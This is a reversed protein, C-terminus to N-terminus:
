IIESYIDFLERYEENNKTKEVYKVMERKEWAGFSKHYKKYLEISLNLLRPVITNTTSFLFPPPRMFLTFAAHM